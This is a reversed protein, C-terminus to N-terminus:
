ILGQRKAAQDTSSFGGGEGIVRLVRRPNCLIHSSFDIMVETVVPRHTSFHRSPKKFPNTNSVQSGATSLTTNHAARKRQSCFKVPYLAQGADAM